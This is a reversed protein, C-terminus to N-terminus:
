VLTEAGGPRRDAGATTHRAMVERTLKLALQQTAATRENRILEIQALYEDTRLTAYARDDLDDLREHFPSQVPEFSAAYHKELYEMWFDRAIVARLFASTRERHLVRQEAADIAEDTVGALSRYLMGQPQLPLQLRQALGVRYALRVEAEDLQPYDVSRIAIDERAIKELEDLRELGRALEFLETEEKGLRASAMVNFVLARIELANFVLMIGDGCTQPHAAMAFLEDRLVGHTAAANLVAWVRETLGQRHGQYDATGALDHLVRFFDASESEALLDNWIRLRATRESG